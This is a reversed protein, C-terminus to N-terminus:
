TLKPRQPINQNFAIILFTFISYIYLNCQSALYGLGSLVEWGICQINTCM